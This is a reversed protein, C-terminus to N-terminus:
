LRSQTLLTMNANLKALMMHLTTKLLLMTSRATCYSVSSLKVTNQCTALSPAAMPVAFWCGELVGGWGETEPRVSTLVDATKGAEGPLTAAGPAVPGPM